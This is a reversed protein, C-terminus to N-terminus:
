HLLFLLPPIYLLRLRHLLNPDGNGNAPAARHRVRAMTSKLDGAACENCHGFSPNDCALVGRRPGEEKGGLIAGGLIAGEHFCEEKYTEERGKGLRLSFFLFINSVNPIM